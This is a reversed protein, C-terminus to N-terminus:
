GHARLGPTATSANPSARGRTGPVGAPVPPGAPLTQRSSQRRPQHRCSRASAPTRQRAEMAVSRLRSSATARRPSATSRIVSMREVGFGSTKCRENPQRASPPSDCVRLTRDARHHNQAPGQDPGDSTPGTTCASPGTSRSRTCATPSANPLASRTANPTIRSGSTGATAPPSCTGAATPLSVSPSPPKRGNPVTNASGDACHGPDSRGRHSRSVHQNWWWDVISRAHSDTM